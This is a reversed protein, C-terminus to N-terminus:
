FMRFIKIKIKLYEHIVNSMVLCFTNGFKVLFRKENAIIQQTFQLTYVMALKLYEFWEFKESVVIDCGDGTDFM